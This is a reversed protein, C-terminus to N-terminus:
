VDLQGQVVRSEAGTSARSGALPPTTQLNGIYDIQKGAFERACDMPGFVGGAVVSWSRNRSSSTLRMSERCSSTRKASSISQDTNSRSNPPCNTEVVPRGASGLRSIVPRSY